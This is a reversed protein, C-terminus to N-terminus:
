LECSGIDMRAQSPGWGANTRSGVVVRLPWLREPRFVHRTPQTLGTWDFLSKPAATWDHSWLHTCARTFVHQLHQLIVCSARTAKL